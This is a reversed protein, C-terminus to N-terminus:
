ARLKLLAAVAALQGLTWTLDMATDLAYRGPHIETVQFLFGSVALGIYGAALLRPGADGTALVVGAAGVVLASVAFCMLHLVQNQAPYGSARLGPGLFALAGALAAAALAAAAGRSRALRWLAVAGLAYCAVYPVNIELELWTGMTEKLKVAWVHQLLRFNSTSILTALFSGAVWRGTPAREDEVRAVQVALAIVQLDLAVELAFAVNDFAPSDGYGAHRAALLGLYVVVSALALPQM